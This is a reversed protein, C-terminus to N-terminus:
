INSLSKGSAYRQQDRAMQERQQAYYQQQEATIRALEEPTNRYGQPQQMQQQQMQM